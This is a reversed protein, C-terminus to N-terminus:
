WIIEIPSNSIGNKGVLFVFNGSVSIRYGTKDVLGDSVFFKRFRGSDKDIRVLGVKTAVWIQNGDLAISQIDVGL